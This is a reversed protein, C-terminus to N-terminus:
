NNKWIISKGDLVSKCLLMIYKDDQGDCIIEKRLNVVKVLREVSVPSAETPIPYFYIMYDFRNDRLKIFRPYLGYEACVRKWQEVSDKVCQPEDNMVDYIHFTDSM